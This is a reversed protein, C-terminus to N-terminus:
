WIQLSILTVQSKLPQPLFIVKFKLSAQAVTGDKLFLPHLPEALLLGSNSGLFRGLPLLSSVGEAQGRAEM